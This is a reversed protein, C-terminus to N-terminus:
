GISACHVALDFQPLPQAQWQLVWVEIVHVWRSRRSWVVMVM